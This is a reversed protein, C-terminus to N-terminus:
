LSALQDLTKGSEIAEKLWKPRPGMGSWEHGADDKYRARSTSKANAGANALKKSKTKKTSKYLVTQAATTTAQAAFDQLAAGTALADRLWRPRPGRGSWVNGHGDFFKPSQPTLSKTKSAVPVGPLTSSEFGLQGATIGYHTIAEKIREIVGVAERQLLKQARQQLLEIQKQVQEYTQAM